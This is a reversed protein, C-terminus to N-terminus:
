GRREHHKKISEGSCNKSETDESFHIMIGTLSFNLNNWVGESFILEKYRHESHSCYKKNCRANNIMKHLFLILHFENAILPLVQAVM